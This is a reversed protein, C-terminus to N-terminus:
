ESQKTRRALRQEFLNTPQWLRVDPHDAPALSLVIHSDHDKLYYVIYDQGGKLAPRPALWKGFKLGEGNEDYLTISKWFLRVPLASRRSTLTAFHIPARAYRYARTIFVYLFVLVLIPGVAWLRFTLRFFVPLMVVSLPILVVMTTMVPYLVIDLWQGPTMKGNRNTLLRARMESVVADKQPKGNKAV